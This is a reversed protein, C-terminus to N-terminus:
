PTGWLTSSRISIGNPMKWVAITDVITKQKTDIITLTDSLLNTIYAKDWVKNTVVGHPATWWTYAEQIQLSNTDIAYIRYGIPTDFYYGQDAVYLTKGDPSPYLQIPWQADAPLAMYSVEKTSPTYRAIRQTDFLSIFVQSGDPLVAVQVAKGELSVVETTFTTTDVIIVGKGDILAVYLQRGDPSLRLGHPSSGEPLPIIKQISKDTLSIIVLQADEQAIVFALTTDANVVVHALHADMGINIRDTIRDTLPDILVLQDSITSEEKEMKKDTMGEPSMSNATVVVLSGDPSVQVNHASFRNNWETLSIYGVEKTDLANVVTLSSEGENAIYIKESAITPVSQFKFYADQVVVYCLSWLFFLVGFMAIYQINKAANM